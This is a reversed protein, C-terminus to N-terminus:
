RWVLMAAVRAHESCRLKYNTVRKFLVARKAMKNRTKDPRVSKFPIKKDELFDVWASYDRKISGAGQLKAKAEVTNKFHTWLNPDEITVEIDVFQQMKLVEEFAQHIKVTSLTLTKKDPDFFALGTHKGPDIGILIRPNM